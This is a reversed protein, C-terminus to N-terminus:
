IESKRNYRAANENIDFLGVTLFNKHHPM